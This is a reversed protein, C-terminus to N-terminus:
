SMEADKNGSTNRGLTQGLSSLRVIFAVYNRRRGMVYMNKTINGPLSSAACECNAKTSSPCRKRTNTKGKGGEM